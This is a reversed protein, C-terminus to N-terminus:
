HTEWDGILEIELELQVGFKQEVGNRAADILKRIDQATANGRNVFFNAHVRSIEADGARYGKLGAAEILRGAYDGPPNKFMSGMSAGAPQSHRRQESNKDMRAQVEAPTSQTLNFRASLIVAPVRERKLTSSRYQYGLREKSWWERGSNPHLIEAMVLSVSMDSGYAGANGYVAGGVTGPISAAWELGSLGRLALQRALTSLNAGSEAWVSLPEHRVDIRTNHARNLLVLGRLGKDSVLVNSGGGLIKFQVQRDWLSQVAAALEDASHVPLLAEVPGGARATTYHALSVDEQLHEGFLERLESIPLITDATM